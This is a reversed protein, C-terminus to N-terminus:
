LCHGNQFPAKRFLINWLQLSWHYSNFFCKFNALFLAHKSTILCSLINNGLTPSLQTAEMVVEALVARPCRAAKSSFSSIINSYNFLFQDVSLLVFFHSTWSRTLIMLFWPMTGINVHWWLIGNEHSQIQTWFSFYNWLFPLNALEWNVICM